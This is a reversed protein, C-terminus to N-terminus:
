DILSTSAMTFDINPPTYSKTYYSSLPITVHIYITCYMGYAVTYRACMYRLIRRTSIFYHTTPLLGKEIQMM